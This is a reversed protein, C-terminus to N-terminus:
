GSIQESFKTTYCSSVTKKLDFHEITSGKNCFQAIRLDNEFTTPNFKPLTKSKELYIDATIAISFSMLLMFLNNLITGNNQLFEMIDVLEGIRMIDFMTMLDKMMPTGDISEETPIHKPLVYNLHNLELKQRLM